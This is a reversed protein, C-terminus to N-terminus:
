RKGLSRLQALWLLGVFIMVTGIAQAQTLGTPCQGPAATENNWLASVVDGRFCETVIRSSGTLILTLGFLSGAPLTMRRLWFWLAAFIAFNAAAEYLQVPHVPVGNLGIGDHFTVSLPGDSHCGYCCGALFCGIRGFAHTFPIFMILTDMAPLLPVRFLKLTLITCPAVLLLAGYYVFGAGSAISAREASTSMIWWLGKGGAFSTAAMSLFLWPFVAEFRPLKRRRADVIALVSALLVGLAIMSGYGYLKIFGFDFLIPAMTICRLSSAADDLSQM